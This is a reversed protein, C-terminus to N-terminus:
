SLTDYRCVSLRDFHGGRTIYLVIITSARRLPRLLSPSCDVPLFRYICTDSVSFGFRNRGARPEIRLDDPLIAVRSPASVVGAGSDAPSDNSIISEGVGSEDPTDTDRSRTTGNQQLGNSHRARSGDPCRRHARGTRTSGKPTSGKSKCVQGSTVSSTQPKSVSPYTVAQQRPLVDNSTPVPIRGLAHNEGSHVVATFPIGYRQSQTAALSNSVEALSNNPTEGSTSCTRIDGAYNANRTDKSETSNVHVSSEMATQQQTGVAEDARAVFQFHPPSWLGPSEEDSEEFGATEEADDDNQEAVGVDADDDVETQKVRDDCTTMLRQDTFAQFAGDRGGSAAVSTVVSSVCASSVFGSGSIPYELHPGIWPNHLHSFHNLNSPICKSDAPQRVDSFINNPHWQVTPDACNFHIIRQSSAVPQTPVSQNPHHMSFSLPPNNSRNRELERAVEAEINVTAYMRDLEAHIEYFSPRLNADWEWRLSLTFEYAGLLVSSRLEFATM